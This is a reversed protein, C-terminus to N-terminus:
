SVNGLVRDIISYIIDEIHNNSWTYYDGIINMEFLGTQAIMNHLDICEGVIVIVGGIKDYDKTVNNFEGILYWPGQQKGHINKIDKWLINRQNLYITTLWLKFDGNNAYIGCHIMQSTSRVHKIELKNNNWAVWIRGNDHHQYNDIYLGKINLKNKISKAKDIKM